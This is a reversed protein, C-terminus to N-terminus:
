TRPKYDPHNPLKMFGNELQELAARAYEMYEISKPDAPTAGSRHYSCYKRLTTVDIHMGMDEKTFKFAQEHTMGERKRANYYVWAFDLERVIQKYSKGDPRGGANTQRRYEIDAPDPTIGNVVAEAIRIQAQEKKSKKM